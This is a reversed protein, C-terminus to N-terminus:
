GNKVITANIVKKKDQVKNWMDVLYSDNFLQYYITVDEKQTLRFVRDESQDNDAVLWSFSNFIATHSATLTLGVGCSMINGLFVKVDPDQMFARESEDKQKTTMKGNYVVSKIKAKDFHEKLGDIEDDFNCLILVKDGNEIQEEALDITHSLMENSLFQRLKIGETLQKNEDNVDIGLEKCKKVYKEWVKAYEKEQKETMDYDKVLVRKKVMGKIETNLRRIYCDSTFERLEDLNSAGGTNWFGSAYRPLWKRFNDREEKKMLNWSMGIQKEYLPLWKHWEGKRPVFQGDCYREVFKQWNSALPHDILKLINYYNMPRNTMPTGSIAFIGEPKLHKLLDQVIKCMQSTSNSLRHCEDIIVLDFNSQYLQSEKLAKEILRKDRSQKMKPIGTGEILQGQEDFEPAVKWDIHREKTVKMTKKDLDKEEIYKIEEAVTYFNKLIDYNIITWKSEKWNKGKVIAIDDPDNYTSLERKWTSKVSAPCIILIKKFKCEMASVITSVTKGLGCGDALICRKSTVMFKIAEKQHDMLKVAYKGNGKGEDFLKQSLKDYKAFDIKVFKMEQQIDRKTYEFGNKQKVTQTTGTFVKALVTTPLDNNVIDKKPILMYIDPMFQRYKAMVAVVTNSEGVISQVFITTPLFDLNDRNKRSKAFNESVQISRGVPLNREQQNNIVYDAMDLDMGYLSDKYQNQMYLMYQDKGTYTKLIFDVEQATGFDLAM